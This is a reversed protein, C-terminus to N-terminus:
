SAGLRITSGLAEYSRTQTKALSSQRVAARTHTPSPLSPSSPLLASKMMDMLEIELKAQDVLEEMENAEIAMEIQKHSHTSECVGLRYKTIAEVNQRYAATLPVEKIQELTKRYLQVLVQRANKIVPTDAGTWAKWNEIHYSKLLRTSRRFM